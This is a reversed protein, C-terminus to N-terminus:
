FFTKFKSSNRKSIKFPMLYTIRIFTVKEQLWIKGCIPLLKLPVNEDEVSQAVGSQIQRQKDSRKNSISEWIKYIKTFTNDQKGHFTNTLM